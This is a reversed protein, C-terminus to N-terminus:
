YEARDASREAEPLAIPKPGLWAADQRADGLTLVFGSIFSAVLSLPAPKSSVLEVTTRSCILSIGLWILYTGACTKLVVFLSGLTEELFSMDLIALAVVTLDALVIGLAISIGNAVGLTAARSVVLAVSASPLAALVLMVRLLSIAAALNM